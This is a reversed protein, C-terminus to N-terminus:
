PIVGSGEVVRLPRVGQPNGDGVSERATPQRGVDLEDAEGALPDLEGYRGRRFGCLLEVPQRVEADHLDEGRADVPDLRV